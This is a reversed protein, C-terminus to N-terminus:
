SKHEERLMFSTSQGWNPLATVKKLSVGMRAPSRYSLARYPAFTNKMTSGRACSAHTELSLTIPLLNM